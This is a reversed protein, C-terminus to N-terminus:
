ECEQIYCNGTSAGLITTVVTARTGSTAFPFITSAPLLFDSTTATEASDTWRVFTDSDCVIYAVTSSSVASSFPASGTSTALTQRTETPICARTMNQARQAGFQRIDAFANSALVVAATVFVTAIVTFIRPKSM